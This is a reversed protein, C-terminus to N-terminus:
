QSNSFFVQGANRGNNQLINYDSAGIATAVQKALVVTEQLYDDPIDTLKEGCFKPVV